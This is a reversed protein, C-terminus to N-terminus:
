AFWGPSTATGTSNGPFYSAAAGGFSFIGGGYTASHRLGTASGTFAYSNAIILGMTQASAYAAGFAPTGSLAETRGAVDIVGGSSVGISAFAGGTINPSSSFRISGGTDAYRHYSSCAGFDCLGNVVVNSTSKSTLGSGTSVFKFGGVNIRAGNRAAICDGSVNLLCNAPMTTNGTLTVSGTGVWPGTVVVAGTYTGDAVNITVNYIDIDLGAVVDIAKQITLFAGGANNVLGTNSDSGDTRVYYTRNAALRDRISLTVAGTAGNVSTVGGLLAAAFKKSIGGQVGYFVAGVADSAAALASLKQDAM